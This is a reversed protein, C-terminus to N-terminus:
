VTLDDLLEFSAHRDGPTVNGLEDQDPKYVGQAVRLESVGGNGANTLADQLHRYANAWTAGDGGPPADDDAYLISGAHAISALCVAGGMAVVFQVVRKM